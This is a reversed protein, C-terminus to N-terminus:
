ETLMKVNACARRIREQELLVAIKQLFSLTSKDIWRRFPYLLAVALGIGPAYAVRLRAYARRFGFKEQLFQHVNTQHSISRAGDSVYRFRRDNLYHKNMEHFLAYGVYGKLAAPDFWITDYFVAEDRVLNESFAVMNGTTLCKAAWFETQSPLSEIAEQFESNSLAREFTQYRGFASRYVEYGENVVVERNEPAVQYSKLGRRVKSRTNASLTSLNEPTDKIVHWWESDGVQDFLEEWRALMSGTRLLGLKVKQKSLKNPIAHPMQLPVLVGYHRRWVVGAYVISKFGIM